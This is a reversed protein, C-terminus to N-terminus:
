QENPKRNLYEYNINSEANLINEHLNPVTKALNNIFDEVIKRSGNSNVYECAGNSEVVIETPNKDWFKRIDEEHVLGLPRIINFPYHDYNMEMQMSSFHGTYLINMLLTANIDNLHHGFAIKTFNNKQAYDMITIRRQKACWYCNMDRGPKLRGVINVDIIDLDIEWKNMLHVINDKIPYKFDGFDGMVHLAKLEYNFDTRDLLDKLVRALILSDKGGSVGILIKDDPKILDYEFIAKVVKRRITKYTKLLSTSFDDADTRM